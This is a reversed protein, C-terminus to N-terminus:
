CRQRPAGGVVQSWTLAEAERSRKGYWQAQCFTGPPGYVLVVQKHKTAPVAPLELASPMEGYLRSLRDLSLAQKSPQRRPAAGTVHLKGGRAWASSPPVASPSLSPSWRSRKFTGHQVSTHTVLTAPKSTAPRATPGDSFNGAARGSM